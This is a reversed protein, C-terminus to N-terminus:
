FESHCGNCSANIKVAAKQIEVPSRGKAAGALEAAAARMERAFKIWKSEPISKAPKLVVVEAMAAVRYAMTELEAAERDVTAQDLPDRGLKVLKLEIGDPNAKASKGVGLGGKSRLRLLDFIDVLQVKAALAKAQSRAAAGDGRELAATIKLLADRVSAQNEATGSGALYLVSALTGILTGTLWTCLRESVPLEEGLYSAASREM